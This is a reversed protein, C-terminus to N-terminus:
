ELIELIIEMTLDMYKSKRKFFLLLKGSEDATFQGKSRWLKVVAAKEVNLREPKPNAFNGAALSFLVQYEEEGVPHIFDWNVSDISVLVIHVFFIFSPLFRRNQLNDKIVSEFWGNVYSCWFSSMNSLFLKMASLYNFRKFKSHKQLWFLFCLEAASVYLALNIQNELVLKRSAMTIIFDTLVLIHSKDFYM